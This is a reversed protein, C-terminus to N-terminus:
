LYDTEGNPFIIIGERCASRAARITAWTGSRLVDHKTIPMAFLYQVTYVIAMNRSLPRQPKLTVDSKLSTQFRALDSPHAVTYLGFEYKAITAAQEDVGVAAGHHFQDGRTGLLNEYGVELYLCARFTTEQQPTM